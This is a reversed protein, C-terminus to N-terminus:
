ARGALWHLMRRMDDPLPATVTRSEQGFPEKFYLKWAHLM